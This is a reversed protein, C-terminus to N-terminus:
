TIFQNPRGNLKERIWVHFTKFDPKTENMTNVNLAFEFGSLAHYLTSLKRDGIYMEPRQRILDIFEYISKM